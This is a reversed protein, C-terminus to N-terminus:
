FYSELMALFALSGEVEGDGNEKSFTGEGSLSEGLLFQRTKLM